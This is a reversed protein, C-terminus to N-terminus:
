PSRAATIQPGFSCYNLMASLMIYLARNERRGWPSFQHITLVVTSCLPEDNARSMVAGKGRELYKLLNYNNGPEVAMYVGLSSSSSICIWIACFGISRSSTPIRTRQAFQGCEESFKCFLSTNEPTTCEAFYYLPLRALLSARSMRFM